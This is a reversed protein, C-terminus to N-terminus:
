SIQERIPSLHLGFLLWKENDRRFVLTDRFKGDTPHGQFSGTQIQVGIAVAVNDYERIQLDSLSFSDNKLGNVYREIWEKKPLIFGAPGVGIFDEALLQKLAAIDGAAEANAWQSTIEQINSNISM